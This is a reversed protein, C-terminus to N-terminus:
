SGKRKRFFARVKEAVSPAEQPKAGREPFFDRPSLHQGKKMERGAFNAVTAAVVGARLDDAEGGWPHLDFYAGWEALQRSTIESLLADPHRYGLALALAFAFQRLPRGIM